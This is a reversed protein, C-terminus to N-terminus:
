RGVFERAHAVDVLRYDGDGWYGLFREVRRGLKHKRVKRQSPAGPVADEEEFVVGRVVSVSSRRHAGEQQTEM